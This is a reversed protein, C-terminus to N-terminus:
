GAKVQPFEIVNDPARAVTLAPWDSSMNITFPSSPWGRKRKNIRASLGQEHASLSLSLDLPLAISEVRSERLIFLLSNGAECALQLRKIQHVALPQQSWMVLSYCAGSRLCQEAAWLADSDTAPSVLLLKDLELGSTTLAESCLMTLPNILVVLRQETMAQQFVPLLLRLEGIGCVSQIENVGQPFGGDLRKDLEIFGSSFVGQAPKGASATAHWVLNQQQLRELLDNM